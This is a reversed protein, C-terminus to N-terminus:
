FHYHWALLLADVALVDSYKKNTVLLPAKRKGFTYSYNIDISQKPAIDYGIGITAKPLFRNRKVPEFKDARVMDIDLEQALIPDVVFTESRTQARQKMYAFGAKIFADMKNEFPYDFSAMIDLSRRKIDSRIMQTHQPMHLTNSVTKFQTFGIEFGQKAHFQSPWYAGSFVRTTWGASTKHQHILYANQHKTSGQIGGEIGAYTDAAFSPSFVYFFSALAFSTKAIM